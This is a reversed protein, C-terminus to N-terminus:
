EVVVEQMARRPTHMVSPARGIRLLVQPLAEMAIERRLVSRLQEVEIPQNLFSASLEFKTATLLVRELAQGCALWAFPSDEGTGICLLMPSHDLLRQHSAAIGDDMAFTRIAAAMIPVTFDLLGGVSGAYAPMGDGHTGTYIWSALERRFRVDRLQLHDAQTVLEAVRDRIDTRGISVADVGEALAAQVLADQIDEPVPTPAFASRNTVRRTMVDFLTAISTDRPSGRDVRVRALVDPDDPDPFLKITYGLGFRQLAVRLNFLAAGCGMILERDYPDVVSLARNRDACVLVTTGDVLFRWPQANHNSPALAAYRLAFRLKIADDALPSLDTERIDWANPMTDANM